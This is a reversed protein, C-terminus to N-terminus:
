DYTTFENLCLGVDVKFRLDLVVSTQSTITCVFVVKTVRYKAVCYRYYYMAVHKIYKLSCLLESM